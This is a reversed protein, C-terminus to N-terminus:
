FVFITVTVVLLKIKMEINEACVLMYFCFDMTKLVLVQPAQLTTQLHEMQSNVSM